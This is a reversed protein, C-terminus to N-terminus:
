SIASTSMTSLHAILAGQPELKEAALIVQQVVISWPKSWMCNVSFNLVPNQRQFSLFYVLAGYVTCLVGTMFM